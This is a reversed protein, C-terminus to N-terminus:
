SLVLGSSKLPDSYVSQVFNLDGPITGDVCADASARPIRCHSNARRYRVDRYPRIYLLWVPAAMYGGFAIRNSREVCLASDIEFEHKAEPNM